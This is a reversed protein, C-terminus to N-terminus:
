KLPWHKGGQGYRFIRCGYQIILSKETNSVNQMAFFLCVCIHYIPWQCPVYNNYFRWCWRAESNACISTSRTPDGPQHSLGPSLLKEARKNLCIEWNQMVSRSVFQGCVASPLDSTSLKIIFFPQFIISSRFTVGVAQFKEKKKPHCAHQINYIM